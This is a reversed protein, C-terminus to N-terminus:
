HAGLADNEYGEGSHACAHCYREGRREVRNTCGRAMCRPLAGVAVPVVPLPPPTTPAERKPPGVRVGGLIIAAGVPATPSATTTATDTSRTASSRHQWCCRKGLAPDIRATCQQGRHDLHNCQYPDWDDAGDDEAAEHARPTDPKPATPVRTYAVDGSPYTAEAEPVIVPTPPVSAPEEEREPVHAVTDPEPAPEDVKNSFELACDACIVVIRRRQSGCRPCPERKGGHNRAEPRQAASFTELIDVVTTGQTVIITDSVPKTVEHGTIPDTYTARGGSRTEKEIIGMAAFNNVHKRCTDVSQATKQALQYARIIAGGREDLKGATARNAVESALAIATLRESASLQVLKLTAMVQLHVAKEGARAQREEILAARLQANEEVLAAERASLAAKDPIPAGAEPASITFTPAVKPLPRWGGQRALYVITGISAPGRVGRYNGFSKFKDEVSNRADGPSWEEAIAIGEPGPYASHIAALVRVWDAYGPQANVHRLMERLEDASADDHSQPTYPRRPAPTPAPFLAAFEDFTYRADPDHHRVVVEPADPYKHNHSGPLRFVRGIDQVADLGGLAAYFRSQMGEFAAIQPDDPGSLVLPEIAWLVQHGGGTRVVWTPPLPFAALAAVAGAAGDPFHKNDLDVYVRCLRAVDSKKGTQAIANAAQRRPNIGYYQDLGGPFRSVASLCTAPDTGFWRPGPKGDQPGGRYFTRLEQVEGPLLGGCLEAVFTQMASMAAGWVSHRVV